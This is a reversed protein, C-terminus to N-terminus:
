EATEETPQSMPTHSQHRRYRLRMTARVVATIGVLAWSILSVLALAFILEDLRHEMVILIVM